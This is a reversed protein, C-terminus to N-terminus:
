ERESDNSQHKRERRRVIAGILFSPSIAVLYWRENRVGLWLAIGGLLLACATTLATQRYMERWPTRDTKGAADSTQHIM